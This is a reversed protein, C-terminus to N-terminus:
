FISCFIGVANWSVTRISYIERANKAFENKCVGELEIEDFKLTIAYIQCVNNATINYRLFQKCSDVCGVVNYKNGLNVVDGVNDMTLRIKTFYIFQLFEKFADASADTIKVDGKEPVSGNFMTDFVDSAATLLIKHAPVREGSKFVFHVDAMNENLYFRKTGKVRHQADFNIISKETYEENDSM